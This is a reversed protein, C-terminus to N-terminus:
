RRRYPFCTAPDLKMAFHRGLAAIADAHATYPDANAPGVIIPRFAREDMGPPPLMATVLSAGDGDRLTLFLPMTKQIYDKRGISQEISRLGQAPTYSKDAKDYMERFYREVAHSMAQSELTAEGATEMRFWTKAGADCVYKM